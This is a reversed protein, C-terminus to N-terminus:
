GHDTCSEKILMKIRSWYMWGQDTSTEKILAKMMSWYGLWQDIGKENTLAPISAWNRFRQDFVQIRSKCANRILQTISQYHWVTPIERNKKCGFLKAIKRTLDSDKILVQRRSWYGFGQFIVLWYLFDQSVVPSYRGQGIGINNRWQFHWVIENVLYKIFKGFKWLNKWNFLKQFIERWVM